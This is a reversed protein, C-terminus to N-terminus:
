LLADRDKRLEAMTAPMGLAGAAVAKAIRRFAVLGVAGFVIALLLFTWGGWWPWALVVILSVACALAFWLALVGILGAFALGLLADRVEGLELAALEVRNLLLGLLSSALTSASGLLGKPPATAGENGGVAPDAAGSASGHDRAEQM